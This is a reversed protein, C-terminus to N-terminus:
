AELEGALTKRVDDIIRAPTDLRRFLCLGGTDCVGGIGPGYTDGGRRLHWVRLRYYRPYSRAIRGLVGGSQDTSFTGTGIWRMGTM